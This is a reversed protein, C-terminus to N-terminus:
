GREFFFDGSWEVKDMGPEEQEETYVPKGEM